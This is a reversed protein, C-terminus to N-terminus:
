ELSYTSGDSQFRIMEGTEFIDQEKGSIVMIPLKAILRSIDHNLLIAPDTPHYIIGAKANTMPIDFTQQKDVIPVVIIYGEPFREEVHRMYEWILEDPKLVSMLVKAADDEGIVTYHELMRDLFDGVDRFYELAEKIGDMYVRVSYHSPIAVVPLTLPECVGFIASNKPLSKVNSVRQRIPTLQYLYTTGDYSIGAEMISTLKPSVIELSKLKEYLKVAERVLREDQTQGPLVNGTEDRIKVKGNKYTAGFTFGVPTKKHMTVASITEASPRTSYNILYAGEHNPHEFVIVWNNPKTQEQSIIAPSASERGISEAFLRIKSEIYSDPNLIKDIAEDVYSYSIVDAVTNLIGCGGFLDLESSARYIQTKGLPPFHPREGNAYVRFSPVPAEPWRRLIEELVAAKGGVQKVRAEDVGVLMPYEVM